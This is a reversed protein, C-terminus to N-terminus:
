NSDSAGCHAVFIAAAAAETFKPQRPPPLM